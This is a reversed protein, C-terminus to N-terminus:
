SWAGQQNEQHIPNQSDKICVSTTAGVRGQTCQSASLNIIKPEQKNLHESSYYKIWGGNEKQSTSSEWGASPLGLCFNEPFKSTYFEQQM